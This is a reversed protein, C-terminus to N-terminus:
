LRHLDNRVTFGLIPGAYDCSLVLFKARTGMAHPLLLTKVAQTMQHRRLDSGGSHAALRETVGLSLLYAAQEAFGEVQFHADVAADALATFDVAATIDQLGPYWLPDSHVRHRFYCQLTGESRDSHYYEAAPYGYDALVVVGRALFHELDALWWRQRHNIESCYSEPWPAPAAQQRAAVNAELERSAPRERLVLVGDADVGVGRETVGSRAARFLTVPLADIIENAIVIGALPTAPPGNLWTVRSVLEPIEVTLYAHQRRRLEPSLEIISYSKPLADLTALARLISAALRGSGGGFEIIHGGGLTTLTAACQTALCAGFLPSLEPATVFDGARGFKRAGAVYYGFGPAYLALEMYREFPMFGDRTRLEDVITAVLVKSLAIEDASPDPLRTPTM